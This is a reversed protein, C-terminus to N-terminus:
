IHSSTINFFVIDTPAISLPFTLASFFTTLFKTQAFALRSRNSPFWFNKASEIQHGWLVRLTQSMTLTFVVVRIFRFHFTSSLFFFVTRPYFDHLDRLPARVVFAQKESQLNETSTSPHSSFFIYGFHLHFSSIRHSTSGYLIFNWGVHMRYTHSRLCLIDTPHSHQCLNEMREINHLLTFPLFDQARSFTCVKEDDVDMRCGEYKRWEEEEDNYCVLFKIKLPNSKYTLEAIHLSKSRGVKLGKKKSSEHGMM